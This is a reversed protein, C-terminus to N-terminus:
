GMTREAGTPTSKEVQEVYQPIQLHLVRGITQSTLLKRCAVRRLLLISSTGQSRWSPMHHSHLYLAM